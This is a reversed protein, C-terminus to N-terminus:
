RSHLITPQSISSNTSTINPPPEITDISPYIVPFPIVVSTVVASQLATIIYSVFFLLTAFTCLPHFPVVFFIYM